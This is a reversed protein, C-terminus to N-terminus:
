HLIVRPADPVHADPM